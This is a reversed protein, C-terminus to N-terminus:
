PREVSSIGQALFILAVSTPVSVGDLRDRAWTSRTRTARRGIYCALIRLFYRRICVVNAATSLLVVATAYTPPLSHYCRFSSWNQIRYKTVSLMKDDIYTAHGRAAKDTVESCTIYPCDALSRRQAHTHHDFSYKALINRYVSCLIYYAADSLIYAFASKDVPSFYWTLLRYSGSFHSSDGYLKDWSQTM